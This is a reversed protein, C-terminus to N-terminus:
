NHVARLILYCNQKLLSNLFDNNSSAIGLRRTIKPDTLKMRPMITITYAMFSLSFPILLHPPDGFYM